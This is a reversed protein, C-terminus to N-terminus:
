LLVLHTGQDQKVPDMAGIATFGNVDDAQGCTARKTPREDQKVPCCVPSRHPKSASILLEIAAIDVQVFGCDVDMTSKTQTSQSLGVNVFFTNRMLLM